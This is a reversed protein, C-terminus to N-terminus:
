DIIKAVIEDVLGPYRSLVESATEDSVLFSKGANDGAKSGGKLLLGFREGDTTIGLIEHHDYKGGTVMVQDGPALELGPRDIIVRGNSDIRTIKGKNPTNAYATMMDKFAEPKLPINDNMIRNGSKSVYEMTGPKKLRNQMYESVSPPLNALKEKLDIPNLNDIYGYRGPGRGHSSINTGSDSFKQRRNVDGDFKSMKFKHSNMEIVDDIEKPDIKKIMDETLGAPLKKGSKFVRKFVGKVVDGMGPIFGVSAGLTALKGEDGGSKIVIATAESLDKVDLAVGPPTMGVIIEGIFLSLEAIAAETVGGDDYRSDYSSPGGMKALAAQRQDSADYGAFEEGTMLDQEYILSEILRYLDRRKLKM